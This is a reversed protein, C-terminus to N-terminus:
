VVRGSIARAGVCGFVSSGDVVGDRVGMAVPTIDVVFTFGAGRWCAFAVGDVVCVSIDGVGRGVGAAVCRRGVTPWVGVIGLRWECTGGGDGDASGGINICLMFTTCPQRGMLLITGIRANRLSSTSLPSSQTDIGLLEPLSSMSMESMPVGSDGMLVLWVCSASICSRNLPDSVVVMASGVACEVGMVVDRWVGVKLTGIPTRCLPVVDVALCGM